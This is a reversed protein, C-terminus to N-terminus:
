HFFFTIKFCTIVLYRTLNIFLYKDIVKKKTTMEIVEFIMFRASFFFLITLKPLM